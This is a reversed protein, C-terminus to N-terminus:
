TLEYVGRYKHQAPSEANEMEEQVRKVWYGHHTKQRVKISKREFNARKLAKGLNIPSKCVDHGREKLFELIGTANFFEAGEEGQKSPVFYQNLIEYEATNFKYKENNEENNKLESFSLEADYGRKYQDYAFKWVQEIPFDQVVWEGSERCNVFGEIEFVVWRSSGTPDNLFESTNCTGLFSCIRNMTTSSRAFPLRENVYTETMYTKNHDRNEKAKLWDDIEDIIIVFNQTLSIRSDKNQPHFHPNVKIFEQMNKPLLSKVFPTKGISQAGMFVVAQKAAYNAEYLCKIASVFWSLLARYLRQSEELSKEKLKIFSILQSLPDKQEM